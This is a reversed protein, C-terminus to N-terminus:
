WKSEAQDQTIVNHITLAQTCLKASVHILLSPFSKSGYIFSGRKDPINFTVLNVEM